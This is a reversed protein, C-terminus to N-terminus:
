QVAVGTNRLDDQTMWWMEEPRRTLSNDIATAPVNSIRAWAYLEAATNSTPAGRGSRRAPYPAHMGVRATAAATRDKASLFVIWCASACTADSPVRTAIGYAHVLDGMLLAVELNGGPGDLVLRRVVHDHTQRALEALLDPTIEGRLTAEPGDVTLTGGAQLVSACGGVGLGVVLRAVRLVNGIEVAVAPSLLVRFFKQAM